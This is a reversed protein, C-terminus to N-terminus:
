VVSKRDGNGGGGNGNFGGDDRIPEGISGNTWCYLSASWFEMLCPWLLNVPGSWCTSIDATCSNEVRDEEVEENFTELGNGDGISWLDDTSFGNETAVGWSDVYANIWTAEDGAFSLIADFAPGNATMADDCDGFSDADESGCCIGRNGGGGGGGMGGGGGNM